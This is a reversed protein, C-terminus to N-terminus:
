KSGKLENNPRQIGCKLVCMPNRGEASTLNWSQEILSFYESNIIDQLPRTLANINELGITDSVWKKHLVLEHIPLSQQSIHGLYCCPHVSGQSDIYIEKGDKCMCNQVPINDRNSLKNSFNFYNKNEPNVSEEVVKIFRREVENHTIDYEINDFNYQDVPHESITNRELLRVFKGTKDVVRLTGNYKFGHPNNDVFNYFGLRDALAKAEDIQHQNHRFVLFDWIAKGGADIFSTANAIVKDWIIGVRHIYNTDELGDICFTVHLNPLGKSIEGLSKWFNISRIGGNTSFNIHITPNHDKIYEVIKLVDKCMMPDGYDGCFFLTDMRILLEPVFIKKFDDISLSTPNFGPVTIGSDFTRPCAPCALNCYSSLEIHAKRIEEYKIM